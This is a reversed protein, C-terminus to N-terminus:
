GIKADIRAMNPNDKALVPTRALSNIRRKPPRLSTDRHQVADRNPNTKNKEDEATLFLDGQLICGHTLLKGDELAVDKQPDEFWDASAGTTETPIVM